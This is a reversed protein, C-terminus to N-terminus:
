IRSFGRFIFQLTLHQPSFSEAPGEVLATSSQQEGETEQPQEGVEMVKQVQVDEEQLEEELKNNNQSQEVLSNQQSMPVTSCDVARGGSDMDMMPPQEVTGPVARLQQEREKLEKQVKYIKDALMHYYAERNPAAEFM